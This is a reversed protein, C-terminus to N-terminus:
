SGPSESLKLFPHAAHTCTHVFVSMSLFLTLVGELTRLSGVGAEVGQELLRCGAHGAGGRRSLPMGLQEEDCM